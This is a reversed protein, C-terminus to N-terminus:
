RHRWAFQRVRPPVLKGTGDRCPTSARRGRWLPSSIRSSDPPATQWRSVTRGDCPRASCTSIGASTALSFLACGSRKRDGGKSSGARCRAGEGGEPAFRDAGVLTAGGLNAGLHSFASSKPGVISRCRSLILIDALAKHLESLSDHGRVSTGRRAPATSATWSSLCHLSRQRVPDPRAEQWGESLKTIAAEIFPMPVYKEYAMFQRWDGTVIDGARVHIASLDRIEPDRRIVELLERIETSWVTEMSAPASDPQPLRRTRRRSLLSRTANPCRSLRWHIWPWRLTAQSPHRIRTSNPSHDPRRPRRGSNRARCPLM